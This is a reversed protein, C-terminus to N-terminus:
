KGDKGSVLNYRHVHGDSEETITHVKIVHSHGNTETTGGDIPRNDMGVLVFFDHIHGDDPDPETTGQRTGDDLMLVVGSFFEVMAEYSFGNIEGSLVAEWLADDLIRVGVVWSGEIFDPDGPRAIFSEVVVVGTGSVDVNDHDIDIGFGQQMFTYAAHRIGEKTWLDGFVNPVDPVLVEAMAVREWEKDTRIHLKIDKAISKM